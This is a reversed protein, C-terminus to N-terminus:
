ADRRPAGPRPDTSSLARRAEADASRLLSGAGPGAREDRRSEVGAKEAAPYEKDIWSSLFFIHRDSRGEAREGHRRRRRFRRGAKNTEICKMQTQEM